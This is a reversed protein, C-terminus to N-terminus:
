EAPQILQIYNGCMDDFIAIRCKGADQPQGSFKVGLETLRKYEDGLDNVRFM